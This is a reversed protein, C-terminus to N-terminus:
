TMAPIMLQYSYAGDTSVVDFYYVPQYFGKTDVAYGLSCHLVRIQEPAQREFYGGDNWKGAQLLTYAEQPSLIEEMDYYAYSLLRNDIQRIGDRAYRCRLTGDIMMAGDIYQEVTFVHWGDEQVTFEAYEPILCPYQALAEELTKRDACIWQPDEQMSRHYEYGPDLYSVYLFHAGNDDGSHDMYYAAEQYYSIHDFETHIIKKFEEAFADCEEISRPQTRYVAVESGVEPLECELKWVTGRTNNTYAAAMPLNGYEKAGYFLFISGMSVACLLFLSGYALVPKVRKGKRNRAALITMILFYGMCAGLTNAFLDDVDWIGRALALQILEIALSVFFSGPITLYWRRCKKGLLPLLFGLPCFLAVNLLVNAWNKASFNNWAERWARFLHLNWQRSGGVGRLITAYVVIALYGVFLLWLFARGWPFKKQGQYKKKHLRYALVLGGLCVIGALFVLALSNKLEWLVYQIFDYM